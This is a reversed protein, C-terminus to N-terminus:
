GLGAFDQSLSIRQGRTPRIGDTDDHLVSYGVASTVRSGIEDCLYQGALRPDCQPEQPGTAGDPDTYFTNKNLTIKDVVFSYRTGFNDFETIPFGLRTGIGTQIQSYTRNREGGVFNFSNYDRRYIEGGLLIQKDLLYPEVFGLQVSKAYRSYNISANLEQGKGMFNRQAVALQLVFKELSSYGGTLQLEGTSKEEIDVGLVIRDPASGETQKVELKEQFFGLSQLRDQSRKVKIANFADGENLRFERRIVKDRTVTNGQIDIREVYVRPTDGVKLNINMVHKVPDRDYAPDIEAFAYGYNGALETLDVVADEIAKANFWDGPKLGAVEKIRAPPIDRLASEAEVQGLRYRAGEEVVYTIIFDRRDPTLEALASIVRFDAYGQTLYFARLKQQDAALRDPDYSDNSKLFGLVGGAQRTFMEKRLRDDGFQNNGIINIRRVKSKDGEFIEFVLDVRNQDLQVVKPEVRAAFRGERRYLEVIREVDARVKSRTFIQRPALKIEPLIKDSKLRKNGELVIRNIVPSERVTILIAGTEAGTIVVDTFLETAYLDKLAQDLTAATYTQGPALNAYARVTEPELRENGRVAISRIVGSRAAPAPAPAAQPPATTAQALLPASWGGLITGVLLMAGARRGIIKTGSIVRGRRKHFLRTRSVFRGIRGGGQGM